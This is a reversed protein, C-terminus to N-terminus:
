FYFDILEEFHKYDANERNGAWSKEAMTKLSYFIGEAIEEETQMEEHDCWIAYMSGLINENPMDYRQFLEFDLGAFYGNDWDNYLEEPDPPDRYIKATTLVYYMVDNVNILKHGKEMLSDTSAMNDDWRTWYCIEIDKDLPVHSVFNRRYIGDNWIRVKFGLSKTYGAIENIYATYGDLGNAEVGAEVFAQGFDALSPYEDFKDFNIFEDGGIHFYKSEKFLEAYEKIINKVFARAEPNNIDISGKNQNGYKDVLWFEPRNKLAQRLHGPNDFSPIIDVHYKKAEALIDRMEEKTIYDESMIDPYTECELRFGENESFHLQLTNLRSKSMDRIRAKIWEPRFYKRGMDLHLAREGVEPFDTIVGYPMYGKLKLYQGLARLGCMAGRPRIAKVIIDEGVEIRFGEDSYVGEIEDSLYVIIDSDASDLKESLVNGDKDLLEGEAMVFFPAKFFDEKLFEESVLDVVEGLDGEDKPYLIGKIDKALIRGNKQEYSRVSPFFNMEPNVEMEFVEEDNNFVNETTEIGSNEDKSSLKEEINGKGTCALSSILILGVLTLTTIKKLLKKMNKEKM